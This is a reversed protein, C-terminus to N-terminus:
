PRPRELRRREELKKTAWRLFEQASKQQKKSARAQADMVAQTILQEAHKRQCTTCQQSRDRLHLLAFIAGCGCRRTFHNM